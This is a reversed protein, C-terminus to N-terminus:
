KEEGEREENIKEELKSRIKRFRIMNKRLGEHTISKVQGLGHKDLALKEPQKQIIEEM